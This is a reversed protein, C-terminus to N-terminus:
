KEGLFFFEISRSIAGGMEIFLFHLRGEEAIFHRDFQLLTKVKNRNTEAHPGNPAETDGACSERALREVRHAAQHGDCDLPRSGHFLEAQCLSLPLTLTQLGCQQIGDRVIEACRQRGHFRRHGAQEGALFQDNRLAM